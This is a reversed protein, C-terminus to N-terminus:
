DEGRVYTPSLINKTVYNAHHLKVLIEEVLNHFLM